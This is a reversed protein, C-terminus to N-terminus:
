RANLFNWILQDELQGCDGCPKTDTVLGVVIAVILILVFKWDIDM